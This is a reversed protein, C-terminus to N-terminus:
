EIDNDEAQEEASDPRKRARKKDSHKKVEEEARGFFGKSAKRAAEGVFTMITRELAKEFISKAM